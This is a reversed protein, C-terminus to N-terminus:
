QEQGRLQLIKQYYWIKRIEFCAVFSKDNKIFDVAEAYTHFWGFEEGDEYDTVIFREEHKESM